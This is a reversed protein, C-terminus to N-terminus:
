KNEISLNLKIGNIEAYPPPFGPMSTARVHKWIKDQTWNLDIKKAETIEKRYHISCTRVDMLEEQSITPQHDYVSSRISGAVVPLPDIANLCAVLQALREGTLAVECAKWGLEM